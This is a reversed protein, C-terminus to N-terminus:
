YGKHHCGIVVRAGHDSYDLTRLHYASDEQTICARKVILVNGTLRDRYHAFRSPVVAHAYAFACVIPACLAAIVVIQKWAIRM